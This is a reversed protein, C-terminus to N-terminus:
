ADDLSEFWETYTILFPGNISNSAIKAFHASDDFWRGIPISTPHGAYGHLGDCSFPIRTSEKSKYAIFWLQKLSVRISCRSSESDEIRRFGSCSELIKKIEPNIIVEHKM